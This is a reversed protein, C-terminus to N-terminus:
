EDDDGGFTDLARAELIEVNSKLGFETQGIEYEPAEIYTIKAQPVKKLARRIVTKEAMGRFGTNWFRDGRSKKRQENMEGISMYSLVQEGNQMIAVAYFGVIESRENGPKHRNIVHKGM